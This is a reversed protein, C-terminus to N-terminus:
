GRWHEVRYERHAIRTVRLADGARAGVSKLFRAFSRRPSLRNGSSIRIDSEYVFEGARFVVPVGEKGSSARDGLSDPPFFGEDSRDFIIRGHDITAQILTVEKTQM